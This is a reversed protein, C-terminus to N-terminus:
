TFKKPGQVPYMRTALDNTLSDQKFCCLKKKKQNSSFVKMIMCTVRMYAPIAAGLDYYRVLPSLKDILDIAM